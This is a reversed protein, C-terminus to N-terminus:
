LDDRLQQLMVYLTSTEEKEYAQKLKENKMPISAIFSHQCRAQNV